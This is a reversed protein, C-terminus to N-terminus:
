RDRNRTGKRQGVTFQHVGATSASSAATKIRSRAGHRAPAIGQEKFYADIFAAYDGNPM